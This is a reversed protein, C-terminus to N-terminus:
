GRIKVAEITENYLSLMKPACKEWDDERQIIKWNKETMKERLNYNKLLFIAKQAIAETNKIPVFFGNEGDIIKSHYVELDSIIPVAGCAMGELVSISLLDSFPVSIFIDALNLVGAMKESSIKEKIFRVNRTMGNKDTIEMMEKLFDEGGTGRLFIFHAEPIEKVITPIANILYRIGWYEALCRNSVLIPVNDPIELQKRIEAAERKKFPNFVKLDIGWSFGVVKEKPIGFIKNLYEGLNPCNSTIKDAKKLGTTVLFKAIHSKFPDYFIDNGWPSLIKPYNGCHALAFGYGLAEMAHVIDPNFRRVERRYPIWKFRENGYPKPYIKFALVKTPLNMEPKIIKVNLPLLAMPKSDSLVLVENGLGAFYNIWRQSHVNNVELLYCIKV